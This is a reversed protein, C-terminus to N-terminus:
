RNSPYATQLYLHVPGLIGADQWGVDVPSAQLQALFTKGAPPLNDILQQNVLIVRVDASSLYNAFSDLNQPVSVIEVGTCRQPNSYVCYGRASPGLLAYDGTISLDQLAAAIPM